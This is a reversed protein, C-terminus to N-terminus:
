SARRKRLLFFLLLAAGAILILGGRGGGASMAAGQDVPQDITGGMGTLQALSEQTPIGGQLSVESAPGQVGQTGTGPTVSSAPTFFSTVADLLGSGPVGAAGTPVPPTGGTLLANELGGTGQSQEATIFADDLKSGPTTPSPSLLKGLTSTLPNLLSQGGVVNALAGGAAIAGGMKVTRLFAKRKNKAGVMAAGGAVPVLAAAVLPGGVLLGAPVAAYKVVKSLARGAKKLFKRLGKKRKKGM